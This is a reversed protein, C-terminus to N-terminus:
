RPSRFFTLRHTRSPSDVGFEGDDVDDMDSDLDLGDDDAQKEEDVDLKMDDPLDLNDAEPMRTDLQEVDDQHAAEGDQEGEGEEDQQDDANEDEGEMEADRELEDKKGADDKGEETEKEASQEETTDGKPQPKAQDEEKAAMESEGASKTTEQNIEENAGKKSEDQADEEDGWFKEDVTSPDLPDVDAVQEEPEPQDDDDDDGDEDQEKDGDGRDEMQGEFDGSMEVADDDEGEEPEDKKEQEQEVDGQLGELQSEDEIEKSVNKAGQGDAMGTGDSTKGETSDEGGQGDDEAPRCFGDAALEKVVSVLVYNLKLTSKHWELSSALSRGAVDVLVQLFPAVRQLLSAASSQSASDSTSMGAHSLRAFSDVQNALDEFRFLAISQLLARGDLKITLDPVEEGQRDVDPATSLKRLEQVLVLVSDILKDHAIKLPALDTPLTTRPERSPSQLQKLWSVFPAFMFALAPPYDMETIRLTVTSVDDDVIRFVEVEEATALMTQSQSQGQPMSEIIRLLQDQRSELLTAAENLSLLLKAVDTDATVGLASRYNALESRLEALGELLSSVHELLADALERSPRAPQAHGADGANSLRTVTDLLRRHHALSMMLQTRHEMAIGLGSEISGIARQIERTSVDANHEAPCAYLSSLDSLLRYHYDDAKVLQVRTTEDALTSGAALLPRSAPISYIYAPDRLRSVLDPAPSPSLGLRKLERLLEIWARRKRTALSKVRQERGEEEGAVSEARLSKATTIIETAFDDIHTSRDRILFADIDGRVLKAFRDFTQDLRALHSPENISTLAAPVLSSPSSSSEPFLGHQLRFSHCRFTLCAEQLSAAARPSM